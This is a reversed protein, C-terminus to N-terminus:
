YKKKITCTNKKIHKIQEKLFTKLEEDSTLKAMATPDKGKIIKIYPIMEKEMQRMGTADSDLLNIVYNSKDFLENLLETYLPMAESHLAIAPFGIQYLKMIDKFSSTNFIINCSDPINELNMVHNSINNKLFRREDREPFYVTWSHAERNHIFLYAPENYFPGMYIDNLYVSKVEKVNFHSLTEKKIKEEEWYRFNSIDKYEINWKKEKVTHKHRKIHSLDPISKTNYKLDWYIRSLTEIYPENGHLLSVHTIVDFPDNSVAFDRVTLSGKYYDIIFSPSLEKRYPSFTSINIDYDGHYFYLIEEDSYYSNLHSKDTIVLESYIM